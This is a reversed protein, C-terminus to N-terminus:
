GAALLDQLSVFTFGKERLGDIVLPLAARSTERSQYMVHMLIISGPQTEAIIQDAMVKPDEDEGEVNVDWMISARDQAALVWPLTFLKQGYPPRFLIPGEDGAARLQADTRDLEDRVWSPFKLIMRAHSFSHNGVAHGASVIAKTLDPNAAAEHGTLFFTTVVEEEALIGLVEATYQRSPGDDFTLAILPQTIEARAIIEGFFQFARAKSLPWLGALLALSLLVALFRM